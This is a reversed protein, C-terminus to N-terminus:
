LSKEVEAALAAMQVIAANTQDMVEQLRQIAEVASSPAKSRAADLRKTYANVVGGQTKAFVGIKRVVEPLGDPKSPGRSRRREVLVSLESSLSM